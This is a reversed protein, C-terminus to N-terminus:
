IVQVTATGTLTARISIASDGAYPFDIVNVAGSLSTSYVAPTIVGAADRSDITVTGIGNLLLRFISPPVAWAGSILTGNIVTGGASTEIGGTLTKRSTVPVDSLKAAPDSIYTAMKRAVLDAELSAELTQQTGAAVPTGAIRTAQTLLITM